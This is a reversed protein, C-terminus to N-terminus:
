KLWIEYLNLLFKLNKPLLMNRIRRKCVTSLYLVLFYAFRPFLASVSTFYTYFTCNDKWECEWECNQENEIQPMVEIINEGLGGEVPASCFGSCDVEKNQFM